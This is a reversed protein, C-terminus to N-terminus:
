PAPIAFDLNLELQCYRAAGEGSTNAIDAPNFDLSSNDPNRRHDADATEALGLDLEPQIYDVNGAGRTSEIHIPKQASEPTIEEPLSNSSESPNM